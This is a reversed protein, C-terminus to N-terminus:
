MRYKNTLIGLCASNRIRVETDIPLATKGKIFKSKSIDLKMRTETSVSKSKLSLFMSFYTM